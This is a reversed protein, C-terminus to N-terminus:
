TSYNVRSTVTLFSFRKKAGFRKFGTMLKDNGPICLSQLYSVINLVLLAYAFATTPDAL